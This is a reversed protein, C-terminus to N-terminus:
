ALTFWLMDIFMSWGGCFSSYLSTGSVEMNVSVVSSVTAKWLQQKFKSLFVEADLLSSLYLCCLVEVTNNDLLLKGHVLFINRFMYPNNLLVTYRLMQVSLIPFSCAVSTLFMQAWICHLSEGPIIFRAKYPHCLVGSFLKACVIWM